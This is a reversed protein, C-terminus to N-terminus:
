MGRRTTRYLHYDVRDRLEAIRAEDTKTKTKSSM